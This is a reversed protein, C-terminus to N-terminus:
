KLKNWRTVDVHNGDDEKLEEEEPEWPLKTRTEIPQSPAEPTDEEDGMWPFIRRPFVSEPFVSKPFPGDYNNNSSM